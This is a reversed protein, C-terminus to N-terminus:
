WAGRNELRPSGIRFTGSLVSVTLTPDLTQAAASAPRPAMFDVSYTQARIPVGQSPSASFVADSNMAAATFAAQFSVGRMVDVDECVLECSYKLRDGSAWGGGSKALATQLSFGVSTFPLVVGGSSYATFGTTNAGGNTDDRLLNFTSAGLSNM